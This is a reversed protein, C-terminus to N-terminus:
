KGGKRPAGRDDPPMFDRLGLRKIWKSLESSDMKGPYGGAEQQAEEVAKYLEERTIRAPTFTQGGAKALVPCRRCIVRDFAVPLATKINHSKWGRGTAQNTKFARLEQQDSVARMFRHLEKFTEVDGTTMAKLVFEGARKNMADRAKANMLKFTRLEEQDAGTTFITELENLQGISAAIAHLEGALSDVSNGMQFRQLAPWRSLRDDDYVRMRLDFLIAKLAERESDTLHQRKPDGSYEDRYQGATPTQCFMEKAEQAPNRFGEQRAKFQLSTRFLGARGSVLEEEDPGFIAELCWEKENKAAGALSEMFSDFFGPAGGGDHANDDNDNNEADM